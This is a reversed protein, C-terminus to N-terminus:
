PQLFQALLAWAEAKEVFARTNAASSSPLDLLQLGPPPKGILARGIRAATSGNFAIARLHPFDRLLHEVRNHEANRIAQDLSGERAASAIVDWLGVRREALRVLRQEYPLPQLEEGIATGLLRWFQNTPHAYYRKAALSAEGPLSGLIFLRADSRAVPPLGVKVVM